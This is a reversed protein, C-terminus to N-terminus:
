HTHREAFREVFKLAMAKCEEVQEDSMTSAISDAMAICEGALAETPATIALGLATSLAEMNNKIM